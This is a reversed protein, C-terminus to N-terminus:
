AAAQAKTALADDAPTQEAVCRNRQHGLGSIEGEMVDGPQLFVGHYHRGQLAADLCKAARELDM